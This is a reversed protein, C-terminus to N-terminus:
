SKSRSLSHKMYALRPTPARLYAHRCPPEQGPRTLREGRQVLLGRPGVIAKYRGLTTEALNRRIYGTAKQWSMRGRESIFRINRDRRSQTKADKMSAVASARPPIVVDLPQDPRRSAIARCVPGGDYARDATVSGIEGEVQDLLAPVQGADYAANNTLVCAVIEGTDADVALYLKRLSRRAWGHKEEDWEGQGFLKLGTRDIAITTQPHSRADM